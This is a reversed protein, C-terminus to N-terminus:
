WQDKPPRLIIFFWIQHCSGGFKRLNSWREGGKGKPIVLKKWRTGEIEGINPGGHAVCSGCYGQRDMDHGIYRPGHPFAFYDIQHGKSLIAVCKPHGNPYNLNTEVGAAVHSKAM